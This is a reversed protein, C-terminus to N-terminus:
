YSSSDDQEENGALIVFLCSGVLPLCLYFPRAFYVELILSTLCTPFDFLYLLHTLCAPLDLLLYFCSVSSRSLSEFLSSMYFLYLLYSLVVLHFYIFLYFLLAKRELIVM